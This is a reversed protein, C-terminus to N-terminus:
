GALLASVEGIDEASGFNVVCLGKDIRKVLGCLVRGPGVEVVREVGEHGLREVIEVWRVPSTLQRTLLETIRDCDTLPEAEVNTVVPVSFKGCRLKELEKSLRQAAETMLPSHSPVSVPLKLARKAGHEKALDTAREVARANGSIVVQGPSNINAAVVPEDSKSAKDCIDTVVGVELGIVACMAGEGEAVAKQMFRGRSRVVVAADGFDLVGAAVLATYEGLSHGALLAPKLGTESELVRLAAVSVTLLAPQTMETRDLEQKPGEFCLKAMDMGLKDSAEEFCRKAQSYEEFLSKGMGVAQSGQGPFIFATKSM